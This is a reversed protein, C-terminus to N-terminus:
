KEILKDIISEITKFQVDTVLKMKKYLEIQKEIVRLIIEEAYIKKHKKTHIPSLKEAQAVLVLLPREFKKALSLERIVNELDDYTVKKEIIVGELTMELDTQGDGNEDVKITSFTDDGTKEYQIISMPTVSATYTHYTTEVEESLVRMSHTYLGKDEGEIVVTYKNDSPVIVYKVGGAEFYDSGPIESFWEGDIETKGTINGNVDRLYMHVPSHITYIDRDDNSFSPESNSVFDIGETSSSHLIHDVLTQTTESETINAHTVRMAFVDMYLNNSAKASKSVVTEDGYRTFHIVPEIEKERVCQYGVYCRLGDFEKYEISKPTPLGTGVINFVEVGSPASWDDLKTRHEELADSLMDSNASSIENVADGADSRGETGKLFNEYEDTNSITFGYSDRYIKTSSSDDFSILPESLSDIYSESPLLGYVGPMNKMVDRIRKDSALLGRLLKQDYGHLLAAIGKPTGIHPSAVFIVKDVLNARGEEELKLMIAKALLGGNSHAIITVKKTPSSGALFAITDTPKKVLNNSVKTGNEVIDFVDYRWDYPFSEVVPGEFPGDLEELYELFGKYINGGLAVGGKEDLVDKTYVEEISEGTDSMRLLSIDSDGGPEWIKEEEGDIETYLRSAQIGPLFLINSIGVPEPLVDTVTFTIIRSEIQSGAWATPIILEFFRRIPSSRVQMPPYRNIVLTYTGGELFTYSDGNEIYKKEVYDSGRHLYLMGDAFFTQGTIKWEHSTEDLFPYTNNDEVLTDGFTISLETTTADIWFPNACNTIPNSYEQINGDGPDYTQVISGCGEAHSLMPMLFLACFSLLTGIRQMSQTM